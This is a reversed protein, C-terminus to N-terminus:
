PINMSSMRHPTAIEGFSAPTELFHQVNVRESFLIQHAAHAHIRNAVAASNDRMRVRMPFM